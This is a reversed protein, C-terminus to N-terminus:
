VVSKRDLIANASGDLLADDGERADISYGSVTFRRTTTFREVLARAAPTRDQDVVWLNSTKVEFTAANALVVLQIMPMILLIRLIVPDRRIQLFEKTLLVRLSRLM